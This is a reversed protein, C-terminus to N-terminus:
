AGLTLARVAEVLDVTQARSVLAVPEGDVAAICNGGDYRYLTLTFTPFDENDLHVTLSIEEQGTPTEDTFSVATLSRLATRLDYVDFEANQYTWTGEADEDDEDAPPNYTFTYTEDELTYPQQFAYHERDAEVVLGDAAEVGYSELVSYLNTLTGGETPGAIVLLKGGGELYDELLGAEEDSIDSEPAYILLADADEPIEDTNLLSFSELEMNEKEIQTQFETPLEAEGHGELTYVKPLEDSIVYDIASTIAGVGLSIANNKTLVKVIVGALAALVCLAIASGLSTSSVQEALSVSFYNFLFLVIAIGAAFGQNDTLSSIFMGVAILAAGMVFFAFISGYAGPLYVEGYQAFILPYVAIIAMPLFFMAVLSLYKGGVIQWTTLPLSYLLQDTKQKREEAFSRMTLVPIIVVLISSIYNLAYEFNAVSAQINYIMAGVGVICLLAACFVYVTLSNFASRLEHKLAAIM